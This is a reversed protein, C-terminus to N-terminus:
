PYKWLHIGAQEGPDLVIIKGSKVVHALGVLPPPENNTLLM